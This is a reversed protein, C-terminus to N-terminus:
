NQTVCERTVKQQGRTQTEDLVFNGIVVALGFDVLHGGGACCYDQKRNREKELPMPVYIGPILNLGQRLSM